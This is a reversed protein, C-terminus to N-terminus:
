RAPLLQNPESPRPPRDFGRIGGDINFGTLTCNPDETGRFFVVGDIITDNVVNPDAPDISTLTINKGSFNITEEYLGPAVIITDGSFAADIAQQITPYDGPINIITASIPLSVFVVLALAFIYVRKM